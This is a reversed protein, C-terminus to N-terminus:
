ENIFERELQDNVYIQWKQILPYKEIKPESVYYVQNNEQESKVLVRETLKLDISLDYTENNNKDAVFKFGEKRAEPNFLMESQHERIFDLLTAFITVPPLAFDKLIINLTYRIEFSSSNAGTAVINGADMYIELQDPNNALNPIANELYHRIAEAKKM